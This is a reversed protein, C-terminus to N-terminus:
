CRSRTATPWRRRKGLSGRRVVDGNVAAAVGTEARDAARGGAGAVHGHPRTRPQGNIVIQM